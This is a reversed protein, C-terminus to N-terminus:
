QGKFLIILLAGVTPIAAGALGWVGAKVKLAIIEGRLASIKDELEKIDGSLRQLELLVHKGWDRWGNDTNVEPVDAM